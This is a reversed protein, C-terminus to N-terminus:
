RNHEEIWIKRIEAEDGTAVFYYGTNRIDEETMAEPIYTSWEPLNAYYWGLVEKGDNVVAARRIAPMSIKGAPDIREIEDRIYRLWKNRYWRPQRIFWGIEDIGWYLMGSNESSPKDLLDINVGFNDLEVLYPMKEAKWGSPMTAGCTRGYISWPNQPDNFVIEIEQPNDETPAHAVSGEPSRGSSVWANFDLISTEGDVIIGHTHSNLLVFGKRSHTKAYKRTLKCINRFGAHGQKCDVDSMCPTSGFHIADFGADIFSTCRYFFWMQTELKSLDPFSVWGGILDDFVNVNHGDDYFMATNDFCRDEYPLEFYEFVYEPIKIKTMNIHCAEFVCAEFIIDPDYSHAMDILQRYLGHRSIEELNPIFASDGVARNIYKAGTYLIMRLSEDFKDINLEDLCHCVFTRSLYNNLVEPSIGNQDYSFDIGKNAPHEKANFKGAFVNTGINIDMKMRRNHAVVNFCYLENEELPMSLTYETDEIGEIKQVPVYELGVLKSITLTYDKVTAVKEWKFTPYNTNLWERNKPSLLRNDGLLINNRM